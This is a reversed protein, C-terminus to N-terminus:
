QILLSQLVYSNITIDVRLFSAKRQPRITVIVLDFSFLFAQFGIELAKYRANCRFKVIWLNAHRRTNNAM